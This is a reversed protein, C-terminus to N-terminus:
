NGRDFALRGSGLYLGPSGEGVPYATVGFLYIGALNPNRKAKLVVTVTKGPPVPPAFVVTVDGNASQSGGISALPMETGGAFSDGEFARSKSVEFEIPSRGQRQSITVAQLPEGANEPVKITFHYAAGSMGAQNFNTAARILEPSREFTTRGNGLPFSLAPLVFLSSSLLVLTGAGLLQATM